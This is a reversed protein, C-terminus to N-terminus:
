INSRIYNKEIDLKSYKKRGAARNEMKSYINFANISLM